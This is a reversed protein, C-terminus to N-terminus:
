SEYVKVEVLNGGFIIRGDQHFCIQQFNGQSQMWSIASDVGCIVAMKAAMEASIVDDAIITATILETVAPEWTRPDILHHMSLNGRMWHRRNIGSTAISHNKLEVAFLEHGLNAPDEIGVEWGTGDALPGSISIDGGCDVMVSGYKKLREMTQKAAWGKVIGGFDLHIENMLTVSHFQHDFHISELGYQPYIPDWSNMGPNTRIKEFTQDYGAAVLADSVVPTIIGNTKEEIDLCLQLVKWMEDSVAISKGNSRNMLSLESDIRFRSFIQEWKEFWDPVQALYRHATKPLEIMVLMDTGMAHFRIEDIM